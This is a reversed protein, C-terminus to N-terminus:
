TPSALPSIGPAPEDARALVCLLAELSARVQVDTGRAHAMAATAAAMELARAADRIEAIEFIAATGRLKHARLRLEEFASAPDGEICALAEGLAVLCSRDGRLRIHFARCLDQMRGDMWSPVPKQSPDISKM